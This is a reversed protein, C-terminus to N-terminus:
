VSMHHHMLIYAMNLTYMHICFYISMCSVADTRCCLVNIIIDHNLKFYDYLQIMWNDRLLKVVALNFDVPEPNACKESNNLTGNM